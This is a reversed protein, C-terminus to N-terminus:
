LPTVEDPDVGGAAVSADKSVTAVALPAGENTRACVEIRLNGDVLELKVAHTGVNVWGNLDGEGALRAIDDDEMEFRGAAM